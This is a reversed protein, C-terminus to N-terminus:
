RNVNYSIIQYTDKNNYKYPSVIATGERIFRLDKSKAAQEGTMQYYKKAIGDQWYIDLDLEYIKFQMRYTGDKLHTLSDVIALTNYSEGDGSAIYFNGDKYFYWDSKVGEAQKETITLGFFREITKNCNKLSYKSYDRENEHVYEVNKEQNNIKNFFYAFYLLQGADLERNKDYDGFGQEAFNSLFLNASYQQDATMSVTYEKNKNDSESKSETNATSETEQTETESAPLSDTTQTETNDDPVNTIDEWHYQSETDDAPTSKGGCSALALVMASALMF